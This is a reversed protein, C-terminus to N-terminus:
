RKESKVSDRKKKKKKAREPLSTLPTLRKRHDSPLFIFPPIPFNQVLGQPTPFLSVRIHRKNRDSICIHLTYTLAVSMYESLTTCKLLQQYGPPLHRGGVKATKGGIMKREASRM